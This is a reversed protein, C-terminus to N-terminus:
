IVAQLRWYRILRSSIYSESETVRGTQAWDCLHHCIQLVILVRLNRRLIAAHKLGSFRYFLPCSSFSCQPNKGTCPVLAKEKIRCLTVIKGTFVAMHLDLLVEATDCHM